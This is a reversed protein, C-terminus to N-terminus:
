SYGWLSLYLELSLSLSLSLSISCVFFVTAVSPAKKPLTREIENHAGSSLGIRQFERETLMKSVFYVTKPVSHCAPQQSAAPQSAPQSALVWFVSGFNWRKKSVKGSFGRRAGPGVGVGGYNPDTTGM